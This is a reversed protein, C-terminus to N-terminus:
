HNKIHFVDTRKDYQRLLRKLTLNLIFFDFTRQEFTESLNIVEYLHNKM